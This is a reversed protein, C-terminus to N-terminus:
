QGRRRIGYSERISPTGRRAIERRKARERERSEKRQAQIATTIADYLYPPFSSLWAREQAFEAMELLTHEAADGSIVMEFGRGVAAKEVLRRLTVYAKTATGRPDPYARAVKSTLRLLLPALAGVDEESPDLHILIV